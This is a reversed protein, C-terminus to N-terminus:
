TLLAMNALEDARKNKDRYVHNYDVNKFQKELQACPYFLEFLRTSNVKYEKKMQKIVLLSDGYVSLNQIGLETAKKLGMLLGTYEAVNNTEKKGVFTSCAWIEKKNYYIVSGAGSLGPNGKSCGDFYLEYM